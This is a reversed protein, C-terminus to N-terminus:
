GKLLRLAGSPCEEVALRLTDETDGLVPLPRAKFDLDLELSNPALDVCRESCICRSRDVELRLKAKAEEEDM